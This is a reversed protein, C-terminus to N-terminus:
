AVKIYETMLQVMDEADGRAEDPTDGTTIVQGLRSPHDKVEKVISGAHVNWTLLAVNHIDDDPTNPLSDIKKGIWESKPFIFRQTVFKGGRKVEIKADLGQVLLVADQIVNWGTSLPIIHSAFYGGSLRPALEVVFVVGNEDIILDGKVTLNDWKLAICSQEIVRVVQSFEYSTLEAPCSSGDEIVYPYFQTLRAYNREAIATFLAEGNCIVSETSLQRGDIWQQAIVQKLRSRSLAKICHQKFSLSDFALVGRAGRSDVPKVIDFDAVDDLNTEPSVVITKPVPIGNLQLREWQYFKNVGLQAADLDLHPLKLYKAVESCVLPADIACCMVAVCDDMYFGANRVMGISNKVDNSRYCDAMIIGYPTRDNDPLYPSKPLTKAWKVAPCNRDQDVIIMRYGLNNIQKLIEVSEVGGGLCLISKTGNVSNM